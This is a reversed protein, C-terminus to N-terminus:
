SQGDYGQEYPIHLVDEERWERERHEAVQRWWDDMDPEEGPACHAKAELYDEFAADAAERAKQEPTM